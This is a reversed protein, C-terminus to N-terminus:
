VGQGSTRLPVTILDSEKPEHKVLEVTKIVKMTLSSIMTIVLISYDRIQIKYRYLLVSIACLFCVIASTIFSANHSLVGALMPFIIRGISGASGIWGM